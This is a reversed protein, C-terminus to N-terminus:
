FLTFYSTIFLCHRRFILLDYVLFLDFLFVNQPLITSEKRVMKLFRNNINTRNNRGEEKKKFIICIFSNIEERFKISFLCCNFLTSYIIFLCHRRFILLDYILFMYFLFMNQPEDSEVKANDFCTFALHCPSICVFQSQHM